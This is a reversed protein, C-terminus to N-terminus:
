QFTFLNLDWALIDLCYLLQAFLGVWVLTYVFRHEEIDARINIRFIFNLLDNFIYRASDLGM